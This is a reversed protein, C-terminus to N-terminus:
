KKSKYLRVSVREDDESCAKIKQKIDDSLEDNYLMKELAESDVVEVTKVAGDIGNEKLVKLLADENWNTTTSVSVVARVKGTDFDKKHRALIEKKITDKEDDCIKKYSDFERKNVDFQEILASLDENKLKCM